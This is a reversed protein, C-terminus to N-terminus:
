IGSILCHGVAGLFGFGGGIVAVDVFLFNDDEEEDADDTEDFARLRRSSRDSSTFEKNGLGM